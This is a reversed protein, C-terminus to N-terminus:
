KAASETKLSKAIKGGIVMCIVGAVIVGLGISLELMDDEPIFFSGAFCAVAVGFLIFVKTKKARIEQETM